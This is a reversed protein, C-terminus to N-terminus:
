TQPASKKNVQHERSLGHNYPSFILNYSETCLKAMYIPINKDRSLGILDDVYQSEIDCNCGLYIATVVEQDDCYHKIFPKPYNNVALVLRYEHEYGWATPKRFLTSLGDDPNKPTLGFEPHFAFDLCPYSDNYEVIGHALFCNTDKYFRSISGILKSVDIEICFGQHSHSYNSWLLISDNLSSASFVRCENRLLTSSNSSLYKRINTLDVKEQSFRLKVKMSDNKSISPELMSTLNHWFENDIKGIQCAIDSNKIIPLYMMEFPDNLDSPRAFYFENDRLINFSYVNNFSYYKYIRKSKM